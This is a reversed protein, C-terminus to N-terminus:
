NILEHPEDWKFMYEFEEDENAVVGNHVLAVKEGPYVIPQVTDEDNSELETMPKARNNWLVIDGVNVHKPLEDWIENYHNSYRGKATYKVAISKESPGLVILGFADHGRDETANLMKELIDFEVGERFWVMGIGCM